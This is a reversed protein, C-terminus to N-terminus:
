ILLAKTSTSCLAGYTCYSTPGLSISEVVCNRVKGVLGGNREEAFTVTSSGVSSRFLGHFGLLSDPSLCTIREIGAFPVAKKVGLIDRLIYTWDRTELLSIVVGAINHVAVFIGSCLEASSQGRSPFGSLNSTEYKVAQVTRPQYSLM